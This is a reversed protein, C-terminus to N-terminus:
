DKRTALYIGGGLLALGGGIVLGKHESLWSKKETPTQKGASTKQPQTNSNTTQPTTTNNGGSYKELAAGAKQIAANQATNILRQGTESQMFNQAVQKVRGTRQQQSSAASTTTTQTKKNKKSAKKAAKKTQKKAKKDAKKQKKAAKKTARKKKVKSVTNKIGSALKKFLGAGLTGGLGDSLEDVCLVEDYDPNGFGFFGEVNEDEEEGETDEIEEGEESNEVDGGENVYEAEVDIVNSDAYEESVPQLEIEEANQAQQEAQQM